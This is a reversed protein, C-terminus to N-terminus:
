KLNSKTIPEKAAWTRLTAYVSVKNKSYSTNNLWSDLFDIPSKNRATCYDFLKIYDKFTIQKEVELIHLGPKKIINEHGKENFIYGIFHFYKKQYPHESTLSFQEKYFSRAISEILVDVNGKSSGPKLEPAQKSDYYKKQRKRNKLVSEHIEDVKDTYYGESDSKILEVHKVLFSLFENFQDDEMGLEDAIGTLKAPRSLDLRCNDEEAIICNLVWFRGEGEFGFKKRLAKFKWHGRSNVDHPFYSLVTGM